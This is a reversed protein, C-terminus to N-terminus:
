KADLMINGSSITLSIQNKQNEQGSGPDGGGLQACAPRPWVWYGAVLAAGFALILWFPRSRLAQKCGNVRANSM